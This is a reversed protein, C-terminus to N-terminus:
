QKSFYESAEFSQPVIQALEPSSPMLVVEDFGKDMLAERLEKGIVRMIGGTLTLFRINEPVTNLIDLLYKGVFDRKENEVATTLDVPIRGKGPFTPDGANVANILHINEVNRLELRTAVGAYLKSAGLEQTSCSTKQNFKNNRDYFVYNLSQFGGGVIGHPEKKMIDYINHYVEPLYIFPFKWALFDEPMILIKKMVAAYTGTATSWEIKGNLAAKIDNCQRQFNEHTNFTTAVSLNFEAPEKPTGHVGHLMLVAVIRAKMDVSKEKGLGVTGGEDSALKGAAYFNGDLEFSLNNEDNDSLMQSLYNDESQQTVHRSPDIYLNCPMKRLVLQSPSLFMATKYGNNSKGPDVSITPILPQNLEKPLHWLQHEDSGDVLEIKIKSKLQQAQQMVEESMGPNLQRHM